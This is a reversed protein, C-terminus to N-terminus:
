GTESVLVKTAGFTLDCWSQADSIQAETLGPASISLVREPTWEWRIIDLRTESNGLLWNVVKSKRLNNELAEPHGRPDQLHVACRATINPHDRTVITDDVTRDTTQYIRCECTDPRFAHGNFRSLGVYLRDATTAQPRKLYGSMRGGYTEDFEQFQFSDHEACVSEIRVCEITGPIPHRYSVARQQDDYAPDDAWVAAIALECGCLVPCIWIRPAPHLAPLTRESRPLRMPIEVSGDQRVAANRIDGFVVCSGDTTQDDGLSHLPFLKEVTSGSRGTPYTYCISKFVHSPSRLATALAGLVQPTLIFRWDTSYLLLHLPRAPKGYHKSKALVGEVTNRVMTGVSYFTPVNRYGGGPPMLVVEMLDLDQPGFRTPLTFDFDNQPNQQPQGTLDYLSEGKSRASAIARDLVWAEVEPKTSPKLEVLYDAAGNGIRLSGLDGTPKTRDNM